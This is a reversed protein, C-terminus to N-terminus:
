LHQLFSAAGDASSSTPALTPTEPDVTDRTSVPLPVNSAKSTNAVLVDQGHYFPNQLTPSAWDCAYLKALDQGAPYDAEALSAQDFLKQHEEVKAIEQRLARFYKSTRLTYGGLMGLKAFHDSDAKCRDLDDYLATLRATVRTVDYWVNTDTRQFIDENSSDEEFAAVVAPRDYYYSRRKCISTTSETTNSDMWSSSSRQKEAVHQKKHRRHLLAEPMSSECGTTDSRKHLTKLDNREVGTSPDSIAKVSASDSDSETEWLHASAAPALKKSDPSRVEKDQPEHRQEASSDACLMHSSPRYPALESTVADELDKGAERRWQGKAENSRHGSKLTGLFRRAETQQNNAGTDGAFTRDLRFSSM